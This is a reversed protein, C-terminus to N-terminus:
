TEEKDNLQSKSAKGALGGQNQSWSKDKELSPNEDLTKFGLVVIGQHFVMHVQFVGLSVSEYSKRGKLM